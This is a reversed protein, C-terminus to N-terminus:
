KGELTLGRAECYERFVTVKRLGGAYEWTPLNRHHWKVQFQAEEFGKPCPRPGGVIAEVVHFGLVRSLSLPGRSPRGVKLQLSHTPNFVALACAKLQCLAGIHKTDCKLSM